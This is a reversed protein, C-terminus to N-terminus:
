IVQFGVFLPFPNVQLLGCLINQLLETPNQLTFMAVCLPLNYASVRGTQYTPSVSGRACQTCNIILVGRQTADKIAQILDERESPGNGAGYTQMVVGKIPPSLFAEVKSFTSRIIFSCTPFFLFPLHPAM